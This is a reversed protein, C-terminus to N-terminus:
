SKEGLSPEQGYPMCASLCARSLRLCSKLETQAGLEKSRAGREYSGTRRQVFGGRWPSDTWQRVHRAGQERSRAAPM